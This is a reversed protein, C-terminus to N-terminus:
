RTGYGIREFTDKFTGFQVRMFENANHVYSNYEEMHRLVMAVFNMPNSWKSIKGGQLSYPLGPNWNLVNCEWEDGECKWINVIVPKM